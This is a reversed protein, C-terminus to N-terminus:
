GGECCEVLILTGKVCLRALRKVMADEAGVTLARM